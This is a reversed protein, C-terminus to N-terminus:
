AVGLHHRVRVLAAATRPATLVDAADGDLGSHELVCLWLVSELYGPDPNGSYAAWNEIAEVVYSPSDLSGSAADAIQYYREASAADRAEGAQLDAQLALMESRDAADLRHWFPGTVPDDLLEALTRASARELRAPDAMGVASRVEAM